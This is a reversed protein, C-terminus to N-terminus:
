QLRWWWRAATEDAVAAVCLQLHRARILQNHRLRNQSETEMEQREEVVCWLLQMQLPTDYILPLLPVVPQHCQSILSCLQSLLLFRLSIVQKEKYPHTELYDTIRACLIYTFIM